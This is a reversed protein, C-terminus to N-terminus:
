NTENKGIMRRMTQMKAETELWEQEETSGRLLGGGAYMIYHDNSIEMCRLSVYLHVENKELRVPGIFGSYYRRPSHENALIFRHAADEPLGCVAPTPHLQGLVDGMRIGEQLTFTFDSRLHVLNAARVTRPGDERLSSAMPSLREAIYSAVLRQEEINKASWLSREGEGQLDVGELQMTGALAITRWRDAERELLIEPTAMLWMGSLPTYLLAVFLRPYRQCAEVFLNVVDTGAQRSVMSRRSLVVKRLRDASLEAHFRAFDEAYVRREDECVDATRRLAFPLGAAVTPKWTEADNIDFLRVIDPRIVILPSDPTVTFPAVVFGVAGNLEACSNLCLLEDATQAVLTCQQEHPLRYLAFGTM